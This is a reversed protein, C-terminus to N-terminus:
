PQARKLQQVQSCCYLTATDHLEFTLEIDTITHSPSQYDKRYKAQPAQAM